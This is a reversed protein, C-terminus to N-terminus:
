KIIKVLRKLTDWEDWTLELHRRDNTNVDFGEGNHWLTVEVFDHPQALHGGVLAVATSRTGFEIENHKTM